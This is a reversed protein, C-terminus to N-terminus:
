VLISAKVRYVIGQGLPSSSSEAKNPKLIVVDHSTLQM